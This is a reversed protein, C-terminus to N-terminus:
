SSNKVPRHTRVSIVPLCTADLDVESVTVVIPIRGQREKDVMTLINNIPVVKIITEHVFFRDTVNVITDDPSDGCAVLLEKSDDCIILATICFNNDHGNPWGVFWHYRSSRRHRLLAGDGL